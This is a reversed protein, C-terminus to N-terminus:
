KVKGGHTIQKSTSSVLARLKKLQLHFVGERKRECRLVKKASDFM